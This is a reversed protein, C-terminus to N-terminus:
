PTARAPVSRMTTPKKGSATAGFRHAGAECRPWTALSATPDSAASPQCVLLPPAPPDQKLSVRPAGTVAHRRDSTTGETCTTYGQASKPTSKRCCRICPRRGWLDFVTATRAALRTPHRKPVRNCITHPCRPEDLKMVPRPHRLVEGATCRRPWTSSIRPAANTTAILTRSAVYENRRDCPPPGPMEAVLRAQLANTAAPSRPRRM